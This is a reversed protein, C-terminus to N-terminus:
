RYVNGLLSNGYKRSLAGGGFLRGGRSWLKLYAGGKEGLYYTFM